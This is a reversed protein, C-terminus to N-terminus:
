AVQPHNFADIVVVPVDPMNGQDPLEVILPQDHPVGAVVCPPGLRGLPARLPDPWDASAPDLVGVFSGISTVALWGVRLRARASRSTRRIAQRQPRSERVYGSTTRSLASCPSCAREPRFQHRSHEAAHKPRDHSRSATSGGSVTRPRRAQGLAGPVLGPTSDARISEPEAARLV